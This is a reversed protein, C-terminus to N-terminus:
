STSDKDRVLVVHLERPGHAGIQLTQEVDATRSPGAILNLARPMAGSARVKDWVGEQGHCLDDLHLAIIQFEPVYNYTIPSQPGSYMALSGTEAIGGFALSVAVQDDIGAPDGHTSLHEPWALAALPPAVAVTEGAGKYALWAAAREPLEALTNVTEWTCAHADLRETFQDLCAEGFDPAPPREPMERSGRIGAESISRRISHLVQERSM